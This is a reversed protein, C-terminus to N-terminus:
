AKKQTVSSNALGSEQITSTFDTIQRPPFGGMLVFPDSGADGSALIEQVLAHVSANLLVKVVLRKGSLLRVQISTPKGDKAANTSPMVYANPDIVGSASPGPSVGLSQGAGSFSRFTEVYDETRKDVLGVAINSRTGNDSVLERPTLGRALSSLFEENSPDDLRRYPGDDVTFGDRYMTIIRRSVDGDEDEAGAQEALQFIASRNPNRDPLVALGSGGGRASVGGVYRSNEEEDSDDNSTKDDKSQNSFLTNINPM